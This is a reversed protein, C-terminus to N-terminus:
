KNGLKKNIEDIKKKLEACKEYEENDMHMNMQTMLKALEGVLEVESDEKEPKWRRKFLEEKFTNTTYWMQQDRIHLALLRAVISDALRELQDDDLTISMELDMTKILQKALKEIDKKDM